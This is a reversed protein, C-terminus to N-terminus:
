SHGRMVAARNSELRFTRPNSGFQRCFDRAFHSRDSWGVQIMVDRVPISTRALLLRARELRLGQLFAGPTTGTDRRFLRSLQSVSLDVANALEHVGVRRHLQMTMTDITRQVRPDVDGEPQFSELSRAPM